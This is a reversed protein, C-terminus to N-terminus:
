VFSTWDCKSSPGENFIVDPPYFVCKKKCSERTFMVNWLSFIANNPDSWSASIFFLGATVTNFHSSVTIIFTYFQPFTPTYLAPLPSFVVLLYGCEYYLCICIIIDKFCFSYLCDSKNVRRQIKPRYIMTECYDREHDYMSGKNACIENLSSLHMYVTSTWTQLMLSYLIHILISAGTWIHDACCLKTLSM